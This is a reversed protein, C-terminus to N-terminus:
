VPSVAGAVPEVRVWVGSGDQRGEEREIRPCRELLVGLTIAAQRRAFHAGICVHIGRGFALHPNPSRRVDFRDPNGFVTEDRNASQIHPVVGDGVRVLQGALEVDATAFRQLRPFPSSCRLVEEIASPMLEPEARLEDMTEPHALFLEVARMILGATTGHGMVFFLFLYGVVENDTLHRGDIEAALLFSILDDHDGQRHREVIGLLYGHMEEFLEPQPLGGSGTLLKWWVALKEADAKPLGLLEALLLLPMSAALDTLVDFQGRPILVDLQATAAATIHQDWKRLARATFLEQVLGRLKSHYPPDMHFFSPFVSTIACPMAQTPSTVPRHSSFTEHDVIVRRVDPYRFVMWGKTDDDWRIPQHLRLERLQAVESPM